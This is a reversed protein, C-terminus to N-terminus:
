VFLSIGGPGILVAAIMAGIGVALDGQVFAVLGYIVLVAAIISLITVLM